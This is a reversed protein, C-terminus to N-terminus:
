VTQQTITSGGQVVGGSRVNEWLARLIGVPDIGHHTLFRQDEAAFVAQLLPKPYASLPLVTREERREGYFAAIPEPELDAEDLDRGRPLAVISDLRGGAIRVRLRRRPWPSGPFPFERAHIEITGGSLRYQGPSSPSGFVRTYSARDLRGQVKAVPLREGVRLHLPASYVRSPIAWLRGEFTLTIERYLLLVWIAFAGLGVALLVGACGLAGGLRGRRRGWARRRPKSDTAQSSM